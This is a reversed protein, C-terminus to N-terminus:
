IHLEIKVLNEDPTLISIYEINNENSIKVGVKIADAQAGQILELVHTPNQLIVKEPIEQASAPFHIILLAILISHKM